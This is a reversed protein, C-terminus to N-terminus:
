HRFHDSFMALVAIEVEMGSVKSNMLILPRAWQHVVVGAFPTVLMDFLMLVYELARSTKDCHVGLAECIVARARISPTFRCCHSVLLLLWLKM